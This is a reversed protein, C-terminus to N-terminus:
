SDSKGYLTVNLSKLSADLVTQQSELSALLADAAQLRATLSLQMASVRESLVSIQESLKSDTKDYQDQQVKILGSVPDSMTSFQSALDGFGTTETGLFSFADQIGASSLADFTEENFSAKGANDFEIGLDALGKISGTGTKGAVARLKEQVERIVFDGTLLGATPGIQADIQQALANYSSAFSQLASSLRSRDSALSLKITESGETTESVTFTIGGVVDNILTSPKSVSAGNIKFETNAGDDTTALLNVPTGTPDDVLTIPKHGSSSATISLYYPTAGTGTTLVSASLGAGLSNLKDRLGQLNNKDAALTFDYNKGDFTLRFSGSAGAVGSTSSAYGATTASASRAISTIDSITYTAPSTAGTYTVSVKSSDSSSAVLAKEAGISGLNKLVDGFSGVTSNLNTLLQKQTVLEIQDQQLQQIPLSAIKVARSLITQFDTSFQSVGTFALPQTSMRDESRM